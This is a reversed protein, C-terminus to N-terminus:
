IMFCHFLLLTVQNTKLPFHSTRALSARYYFPTSIALPISSPIILVVMRTLINCEVGSLTSRGTSVMVGNTLYSAHTSRGDYAKLSQTKTSAVPSIRFSM